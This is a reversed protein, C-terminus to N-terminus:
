HFGIMFHDYLYSKEIESLIFFYKFVNAIYLYLICYVINSKYSYIFHFLLQFM